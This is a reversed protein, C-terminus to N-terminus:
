ETGETARRVRAMRRAYDPTVGLARMQIAKEIGLGPYGAEAMAEVWAADIELARAAILDDMDSAALGAQRLEVVFAPTVGLASVAMLQDADEVRVCERSLDDVSTLKADVLTLGLVQGVDEAPLGRSALGAIFRQDPDFRCTGAARGEETTRGSCALAGAERALSFAVTEGPQGPSAALADFIEPLERPDFTANMGDRTLRLMAKSEPGSAARYSWAIDEVPEFAAGRPGDQACATTAALASLAVTAILTFRPM